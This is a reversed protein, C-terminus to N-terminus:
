VQGLENRIRAVRCAHSNPGELRGNEYLSIAPCIFCTEQFDCTRCEAFRHWKVDRIEKMWASDKWIEALSSNKINGAPVKNQTCAFVDGNPSIIPSSCASTCIVEDDHRVLKKAKTGYRRFFDRMEDDTLAHNTPKVSGDDKPTMWVDTLYPAGIEDCWALMKELDHFSEHMLPIKVIVRQGREVLREINAKVRGYRNRDGTVTEYTDESAGYLSIDVSIPKLELLNELRAGELLHGNSFLRIVFRKSRAYAALEFFDKRIIAEGGTFTINMCGLNYLQDIVGKFEETSLEPREPQDVCYCHLCHYNCRYTLELQTTVFQKRAVMKERIDDFTSM